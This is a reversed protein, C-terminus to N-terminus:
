SLTKSLWAFSARASRAPDSPRDHEVVMWRAGCDLCLQKLWSADLSTPPPLRDAATEHFHRVTPHEALKM